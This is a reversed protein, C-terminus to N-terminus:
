LKKWWIKSNPYIEYNSQFLDYLAKVVGPHCVNKIVDQEKHKDIEATYEGFRIYKEECDHGCIIGGKKVKPLWVEIDNKVNSYRHDADIFVLDLSNDKFVAAAISSEMVMPNVIGLVGLEVMNRRFISFVDESKANKHGPVGENGQWHDIAYLKGNFPKITKAIVATSFGKWSGVEAVVMDDKLAEQVICELAKADYPPLDSTIDLQKDKIDRVISHMTAKKIKNLQAIRYLGWIYTIPRDFLSSEFMGAIIKNGELM